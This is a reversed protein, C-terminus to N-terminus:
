RRNMSKKLIARVQESKETLAVFLRNEYLVHFDYAIHQKNKATFAVEFLFHVDYVM